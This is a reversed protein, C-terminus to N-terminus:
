HPCLWYQIFEIDFNTYLYNSSYYLVCVCVSMHVRVYTCVHSMYDLRSTLEGAAYAAIIALQSWRSVMNM